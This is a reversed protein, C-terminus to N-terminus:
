KAVVASAPQVQTEGPSVPAPGSSSAGGTLGQQEPTVYTTVLFSADLQPSSGPAGGKLSFGDITFLRGNPSVRTGGDVPTVLGDLGGIFNAIDFFSGQFGLEYPMTPLGAAGVVAGLPQTAASSETAPVPAASATTSSATSSGTPTGGSTPPTSGTSSSPTSPSPATPAPTSATSGDSSATGQTLSISNMQVKSRDAISNLQVLLSSTDAQAPVAKGLVVLRGYYRPFEQRAQEGFSAVQQQQSINAHLDDIQGELKSAQERKPALVLLYFGIALAVLAVGLIIGRDSAKM